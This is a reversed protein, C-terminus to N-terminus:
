TALIASYIEHYSEYLAPLHSLRSGSGGWLKSSKKYKLLYRPGSEGRYFLVTWQSCPHLTNNNKTESKYKDIYNTFEPVIRIM